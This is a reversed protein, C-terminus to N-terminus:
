RDVSLRHDVIDVALELRHPTSENSPVPIRKTINSRPLTVDLSMDQKKFIPQIGNPITASKILPAIRLIIPPVDEILIRDIPLLLGSDIPKVIAIHVGPEEM